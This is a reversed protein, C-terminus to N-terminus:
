MLGKLHILVNRIENVSHANSGFSVSPNEDLLIKLFRRPNRLYDGNLEIATDTERAVRFLMRLENEPMEGYRREFLWCPHALVHIRPHRCLGISKELEYTLAEEYPFSGDPIKTWNEDHYYGHVAGLTLEADRWMEETADVRGVEGIANAEMGILVQVERNRRQECIERVYGRWWRVANSRVHETIAFLELGRSEAANIMERISHKGDVFTTHSHLDWQRDFGILNSAKPFEVKNRFRKLEM